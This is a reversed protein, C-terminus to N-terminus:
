APQAHKVALLRCGTQIGYPTAFWRTALINSPDSRGEVLGLAVMQNLVKGYDSRSVIARLWGPHEAVVLRMAAAERQVLSAVASAVVEPTAGGGFTQPLVTRMLSDWRVELSCTGYDSSGFEITINTADAGQALDEVGEPASRNRAVTLEGNLSDIESRLRLLEDKLGEPVLDARVWGVQPKIKMLSAMGLTVAGALEGSASWYKAHRANEIKGRFAALGAKGEDTPETKNAPITGPDKHLFALTPLGVEVAYDYEMETYSRGTPGKSGYRGGVIVVYYDCGAIFRQIHSWSDDDAAPFLEMGTPICDLALLAQMVERREERLDEYTSSVFVQYRRDM